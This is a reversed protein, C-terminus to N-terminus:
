EPTATIYYTENIERAAHHPDYEYETLPDVNQHTVSVKVGKNSPFVDLYTIYSDNFNSALDTYEPRIPNGNAYVTSGEGFTDKLLAEYSRWVTMLKNKLKSDLQSFFEEQLEPDLGEYDSALGYKDLSRVLGPTVKEVEEELDFISSGATILITGKRLKHGGIHLDQDLRFKM